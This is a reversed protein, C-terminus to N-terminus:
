RSWYPLENYNNSLPNKGAVGVSGRSGTVPLGDITDGKDGQFGSEGKVVSLTILTNSDKDYVVNSTPIGLNSVSGVNTNLSLINDSANLLNEYKKLKADYVDLISTINLTHKDIIDKSQQDIPLTDIAQQIPYSCQNIDTSGPSLPAKFNVWDAASNANSAPAAPPSFATTMATVFKDLSSMTGTSSRSSPSSVGPENIGEKHSSAYNFVNFIIIVFIIILLIFFKTKKM